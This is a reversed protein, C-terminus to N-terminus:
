SPASAYRLPCQAGQHTLVAGRAGAEAWAVSGRGDTRGHLLRLVSQVLSGNQFAEAIRLTHQPGVLAQPLM